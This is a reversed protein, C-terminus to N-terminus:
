QPGADPDEGSPCYCATFSGETGVTGDTYTPAFGSITMLGGAASFADVTFDLKGGNAETSHGVTAV